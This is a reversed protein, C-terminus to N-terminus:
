EWFSPLGLAARREKGEPDFYPEEGVSVVRDGIRLQTGYDFTAQNDTLASWDGRGYRCGRSFTNTFWSVSHFTSRNDWIAIDGRGPANNTTWKFRVQLDHNESVIKQEEAQDRSERTSIDHFPLIIRVFLFELLMDSEDESVGQIRKTFERNVYLGKWGTM